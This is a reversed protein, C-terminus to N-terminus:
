CGNKPLGEGLIITKHLKQVVFGPKSWGMSLTRVVSRIEQGKIKKSPLGFYTSLCESIVLRNYYSDM